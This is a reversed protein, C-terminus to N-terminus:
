RTQGGGPLRGLYRFPNGGTLEQAIQAIADTPGALLPQLRTRAAALETDLKALQEDVQQQSKALLKRSHSEITQEIAANMAETVVPGLNSWLKLEPEDLTGALDIRTAISPLQRLRSALADRLPATPSSPDAPGTTAVRVERQVLQVDGSLRDGEVVVSINLSAPSAGLALGMWKGGGLKTEPIVLNKCEAVLHDRAVPGTRDITARLRLPLAGTTTLQLRLPEDILHPQSTANTMLGTLEVPRGSIRATGSLELAQILLDPRQEVGAFLVDVGRGRVVETQAVRKSPAMKRAWRVWRILEQMPEALEDGVLYATLSAPDLSDVQLTQRLFQEDHRRAAAVRQRDAHVQGPLAEFEAYLRKSQQELDAIRNPADRLLDVHRLPNRRAEVIQTKLAEADAKLQKADAALQEYKAPWKNRLEQAVQPSQLESTLDTTLRDGLGDLWAGAQDSAADKLWTAGAGPAQEAPEVGPLEGSTLRPTGLRLGRVVGFSVVAQKRLMAAADLDLEIAEAEVLNSTPKEPNAIQVGRLSVRTGLLSAQSQEIDVRAGLASEGGHKVALKVMWGAGLESLCILAVLFIVRPAIYSWRLIRTWSLLYYKM